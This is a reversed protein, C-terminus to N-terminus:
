VCPNTLDNVHLINGYCCATMGWHEIPPHNAGVFTSPPFSAGLTEARLAHCEGAGLTHCEGARLAHCEGARLAHCEGSRCTCQTCCAWTEVCDSAPSCCVTKWARMCICVICVRACARVCVCVCHCAGATAAWRIRICSEWHEMPPYRRCPPLPFLWTLM